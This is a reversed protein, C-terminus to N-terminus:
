EAGETIEKVEEVSTEPNAEAIQQQAEERAKKIIDDFKDAAIKEKDVKVVERMSEFLRDALIEQYANDVQKEDQMLRNATNLIVLEDGQGGFYQRVQAKFHDVLEEDTVNIEFQKILKGRVLSWQLNKSFAEYEKDTIDKGQNQGEANSKIWRKMFADPLELPNQELLHNQFDRFLLSEAQKDYYKSVEKEIFARAEEETKVVGEGFTKDFFETNLEAPIIRSVDAITAEFEEGIAEADDGEKVGLLYKQVYDRTRDKELKYINFKITDGKKKKKIEAKYADDLMEVLITFTAAWGNEKKAKGDLEDANFSIMDKEEISDDTSQREGGRQRMSDMDKDITEKPVEVSYCNFKQSADLGKVEFDPAIGLDFNFTYDVLNDLNFDYSEQDESPLPYGLVKIDSESLYKNVESQLMENVTDALIARGYMKKIYGVPTKGKRFGKMNAKKRHSQLQSKLKPEYEAKELTVTLVANLNDIDKRVVKPM